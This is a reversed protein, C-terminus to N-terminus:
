VIRRAVPATHHAFEVGVVELRGVDLIYLKPHHIGKDMCTLGSIGAVIATVEIDIEAFHRFVHEVVALLECLATHRDVAGVAKDECLPALHRRRGIDSIGEGSGFAATGQLIHSEVSEVVAFLLGKVRILVEELSHLSLDVLGHPVRDPCVRGVVVVVIEAPRVIVVHLGADEAPIFVDVVRLAVRGVAIPASLAVIGRNFARRVHFIDILVIREVFILFVELVM